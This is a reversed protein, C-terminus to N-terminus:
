LVLLHWEVVVFFISEDLAYTFVGHHVFFEYALDHSIVNGIPRTFLIVIPKAILLYRHRNLSSKPKLSILLSVGLGRPSAVCMDRFV